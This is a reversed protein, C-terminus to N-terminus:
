EDGEELIGDEISDEEYVTTDERSKNRAILKEKIVNIANLMFVITESLEEFRKSVEDLRSNVKSLASKIAESDPTKGKLLGQIDQQLDYVESLVRLIDGGKEIVITRNDPNSVTQRLYESVTLNRLQAENDIQGKLSASVKFTMPINNPEATTIGEGTNCKPIKGLQRVDKAYSDNKPNHITASNM